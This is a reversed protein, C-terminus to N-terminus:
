SKTEIVSKFFQV